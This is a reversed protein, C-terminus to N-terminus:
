LGGHCGYKSVRTDRVLAPTSRRRRLYEHEVKPVAAIISRETDDRVLTPTSGRSLLYEHWRRSSLKFSSTKSPSDTFRSSNGYRLRVLEDNPVCERLETLGDMTRTLCFFMALRKLTSDVIGNTSASFSSYTLLGYLRSGSSPTSLHVSTPLHVPPCHAPVRPLPFPGLLNSLSFSILDVVFAFIQSTKREKFM